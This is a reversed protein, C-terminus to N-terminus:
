SLSVYCVYLGGVRGGAHVVSVTVAIHSSLSTWFWNSLLLATFLFSVSCSVSLPFPSLVLAM